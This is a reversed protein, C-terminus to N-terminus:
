IASKNKHMHVFYQRVDWLIHTELKVDDWEPNLQRLYNKARDYLSKDKKKTKAIHGIIDYYKRNVRTDQRM